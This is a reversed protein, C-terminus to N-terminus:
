GKAFDFAINAHALDGEESPVDLIITRAGATHYARLLEGVQAYTGVLYPCFTKYTRFPFLWYPEDRVPTDQARQSLEVHWQSQSLRGALAQRREGQPDGPFRDHAVAWAQAALERAIIGIRIGDSRPEQRSFEDPPGAYSLRRAGLEQATAVAAESSGSLYCAPLLEPDMSPQLQVGRLHYYKGTFTVPTASTLLALVISTYESLRAYRQDHDTVLEDALGRLDRVFGGTVLNLAVRRRFLHALTSISKAVAYPHAYIPQVAVLPVIRETAAIMTYATLWPDVLSNDAYILLGRHGHRECWQSVREVHLRYEVAGYATSPPCTAYVEFM